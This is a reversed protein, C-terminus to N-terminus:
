SGGDGVGGVRRMEVMWAYAARDVERTDGYKYMMLDCRGTEDKTTDEPANTNTLGADTPSECVGSLSKRRGVQLGRTPPLAQYSVSAEECM